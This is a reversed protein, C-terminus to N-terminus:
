DGHETRRKKEKREKVYRILYYIGVGIIIVLAVGVPVILTLDQWWIWEETVSTDPGEYSLPITIVMPLRGPPLNEYADYLQVKLGNADTYETGISYIRFIYIIDSFWFDIYAMQPLIPSFEWPEDTGFPKVAFKHTENDLNMVGLKYIPLEIVQYSFSSIDLTTSYYIVRDFLDNVLITHIAQTNKIRIDFNSIYTYNSYVEVDDMDGSLVLEGDIYTKVWNVNFEGIALGIDAPLYRLRVDYFFKVEYWFEYVLTINYETTPYGESDTSVNYIYLVTVNHWDVLTTKEISFFTATSDDIILSDDHYIDIWYFELNSYFSLNFFGDSQERYLDNLPHNPPILNSYWTMFLVTDSSNTFAITFNYLGAEKEKPIIIFTGTAQGNGNGAETENTYAIYTYNLNSTCYLNIYDDTVYFSQVNILFQEVGGDASVTYVFGFLVDNSDPEEFVLTVQHDGVVTSKSWTTPSGADDTVKEIADEFVTLSDTTSKSTNWEVSITASIDVTYYTVFFDSSPNNYYSQFSVLELSYTFGITYNISVAPTVNRSTIITTGEKFLTGSDIASDDEYVIYSGDYNSTVYTNVYLDSLYFSEVNVAFADPEVTYYYSYNSNVYIYDDSVDFFIYTLNHSGITNNKIIGDL